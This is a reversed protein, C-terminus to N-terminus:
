GLNYSSRTLSLYSVSSTVKTKVTEIENGGCSVVVFYRIVWFFYERKVFWWVIAKQRVALINKSEPLRGM